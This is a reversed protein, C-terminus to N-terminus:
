GYKECFKQVDYFDNVRAKITQDDWDWWRINLLKKITEENFRYKIIRAPNGGVIAYPPVDKTVVADAAVVAGDGIKVGGLVNANMGIWVDNGVVVPGKQPAEVRENVMGYAVSQIIPSTTVWHYNHGKVGLTVQRAISCFKGIIAGDVYARPGSIYSYDGLVTDFTIESGKRIMSYRGTQMNLSINHDEIFSQNRKNKRWLLFRAAIPRLLYKM